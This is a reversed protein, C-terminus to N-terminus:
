PKEGSVAQRRQAELGATDFELMLLAGQVANFQGAPFLEKTETLVAKWDVATLAHIANGSGFTGETVVHPSSQAAMIEALNNAQSGSLSMGAENAAAAALTTFKYPYLLRDTYVRFKAEVDPGFERSMWDADPGTAGSGIGAAGIGLRDIWLSAIHTEFKDIQGANFGVSRFFPYFDAAAAVKGTQMLLNRAQPFAQLFRRGEAFPDSARPAGAPLAHVLRSRIPNLGANVPWDSPERAESQVQREADRLKAATVALQGRAMSLDAQAKANLRLTYAAGGILPIALVVWFWAGGGLAAASAAGAAMAPGVAATAVGRPAALEGHSSLVGALAASTSAIGKRALLSRM